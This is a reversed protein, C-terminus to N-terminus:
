APMTQSIAEPIAPTRLMGRIYESVDHLQSPSLKSADAVLAEFEHPAPPNAGTFGPLELLVSDYMNYHERVAELAEHSIEAIFSFSDGEDYSAPPGLLTTRWGNNRLSPLFAVDCMGLLGYIGRTLGFEIAAIRLQGRVRLGKEGRVAPIQYIRSGEWIHASKGPNRMPEVTEPFSDFIISKDDTPRMRLGAQVNGAVDLSLLYVARDDDMDDYEGGDRIECATWQLQDVFFQKRQAHMERLQAKYIARNAM